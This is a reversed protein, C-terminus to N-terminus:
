VQGREGRGGAFRYVFGQPESVGVEERGWQKMCAKHLRKRELECVLLKQETAVLKQESAVLNQETAVLKRSSAVLQAQSRELKAKCVTLDMDRHELKREQVSLNQESINLKTVLATQRSRWNEALRLSLESDVAEKDTIRQQLAELDTRSAELDARLTALETDSMRAQETKLAALDDQAADRELIAGNLLSQQAEIDNRAESAENDAAAVAEQQAKELKEVETDHAASEDRLQQQLENISKQQDEGLKVARERDALLGSRKQEFEDRLEDLEGRALDRHQEAHILDTRLSNIEDKRATIEKERETATSRSQEVERQLQELKSVTGVHESLQGQMLEMQNNTMDRSQEASRLKDQLASLEQAHRSQHADFKDEFEKRDKAYRQAAEQMALERKKVNENLQLLKADLEDAEREHNGARDIAAHRATDAEDLRRNSEERQREYALREQRRMRQEEDLAQKLASNLSELQRCREQLKHMQRETEGRNVPETFPSSVNHVTRSHPVAPSRVPSLTESSPRGPTDHASQIPSAPESRPRTATNIRLSPLNATTSTLRAPTLESHYEEVTPQLFHKHLPLQPTGSPAYPDWDSSDHHEDETQIKASHQPTFASPQEHWPSAKPPSHDPTHHSATAQDDEIQVPSQPLELTDRQRVSERERLDQEKVAQLGSRASSMTSKNRTDGRMWAAMNLTFDSPGDIDESLVRDVRPKPIPSTENSHEELGLARLDLSYQSDIPSTPREWTRVPPSSNM